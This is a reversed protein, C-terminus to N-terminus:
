LWTVHYACQRNGNKRCESGAHEVSANKGFKAVFGYIIGRDFDCLYPVDVVRVTGIPKQSKDREFTYHGIGDLMQGTAPDFMVKGGHRHNMHYAIDLSGLASPVDNIQPPLLANEVVRRGVHNLKTPGVAMIDEWAALWEPLPYWGEPDITFGAKEQRGIGRNVFPKLAIEPFLKFADTIAGVNSGFVEYGRYEEYTMAM